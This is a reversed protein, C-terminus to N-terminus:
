HGSIHSYWPVLHGWAVLWKPALPLRFLQSFRHLGFPVAVLLVLSTGGRQWHPRSTCAHGHPRYLPSAEVEWKVDEEIWAQRVGFGRALFAAGPSNSEPGRPASTRAVGTEACM